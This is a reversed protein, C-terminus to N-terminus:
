RHMPEGLAVPLGLTIELQRENYTLDRSRHVGRMPRSDETRCPEGRPSNCQPCRYKLAKYQRPPTVPRGETLGHRQLAQVLLHWAHRVMQGGERLDPLHAYALERGRRWM